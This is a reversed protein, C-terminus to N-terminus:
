LAAYEKRDDMHRIYTLIVDSEKITGMEMACAAFPGRDSMSRQHDSGQLKALAQQLRAHGESAHLRLGYSALEKSTKPELMGLILAASSATVAGQRAKYWAATRQPVRPLDQDSITDHAPEDRAALSIYRPAKRM